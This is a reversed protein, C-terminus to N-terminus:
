EITEDMVQGYDGNRYKQEIRTVCALCAFLSLLVSGANGTLAGGVILSGAAALMWRLARAEFLNRGKACSISVPPSFPPRQRSQAGTGLSRKTSPLDSFDMRV